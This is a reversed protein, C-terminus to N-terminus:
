ALNLKLLIKAIAEAPNDGINENHFADGEDNEICVNRKDIIVWHERGLIEVAGDPLLTWLEDATPAPISVFPRAVSINAKVFNEPFDKRCEHNNWWFYSEIVIGNAVLSKSTELSTTKM